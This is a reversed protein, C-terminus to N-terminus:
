QLCVKKSAIINKNGDLLQIFYIGKLGFQKLSITSSETKINNLYVTEGLSNSIRINGGNLSNYDSGCDITVKDTTPNPYVNIQNASYVSTVATADGKFLTYIEEPTLVRNYIKIDDIKGIFNNEYLSSTNPAGIILTKSTRSSSTTNKTPSSVTLKNNVYVSYNGYLNDYTFVIHSWQNLPYSSILTDCAMSLTKRGIKIKGNNWLLYYGLSNPQGGSSMIYQNVSNNIGNFITTTPFISVSITMSENDGIPDNGCTIGEGSYGHFLYASNLNGSRDDTLSAFSVVGNNTNSVENNANGNFPYSLVLGTTPMQAFSMLTILLFTQSLLYKTKM